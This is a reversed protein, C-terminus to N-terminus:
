VGEPQCMQLLWQRPSDVQAVGRCCRRFGVVQSLVGPSVPCFSGIVGVRYRFPTGCWGSSICRMGAFAARPPSMEWCWGLGKPQAFSRTASPDVLRIVKGFEPYLHLLNSPLLALPCLLSHGEDVIKAPNADILIAPAGGPRPGAAPGRRYLLQPCPIGPHRSPLWGTSPRPLPWPTPFPFIHEWQSFILTSTISLSHLEYREAVFTFFVESEEARQPAGGLKWLAGQLGWQLALYFESAAVEAYRWGSHSLMFQFLSRLILSRIM